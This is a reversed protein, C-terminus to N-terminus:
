RVTASSQDQQPTMIVATATYYPPIILAIALGLMGMAFTVWFIMHKHSLLSFVIDLLDLTYGGDIPTYATARRSETEDHSQEIM